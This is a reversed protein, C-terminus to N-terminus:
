RYHKWPLHPGLLMLLKATKILIAFKKWDNHYGQILIFLISNIIHWEKWCISQMSKITTVIIQKCTFLLYIVILFSRWYCLRFLFINSLVIFNIKKDRGKKERKDWKNTPTCGKTCTDLPSKGLELKQNILKSWNWKAPHTIPVTIIILM